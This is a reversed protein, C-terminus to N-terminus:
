GQRRTRAGKCAAASLNEHGRRQAAEHSHEGLSAPLAARHGERRLARLSAKPPPPTPEDNAPETPLGGTKPAPLDIGARGAKSLGMAIAQETLAAKGERKDKSEREMRKKEAM